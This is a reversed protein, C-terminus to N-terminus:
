LVSKRSRMARRKAGRWLAIGLGTLMTGLTGPEPNATVISVQATPMLMGDSAHIAGGASLAANGYTTTGWGFDVKRMASATFHFPQGFVFPAYFGGQACDITGGSLTLGFWLISGPDSPPPM